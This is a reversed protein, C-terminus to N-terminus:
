VPAAGRYEPLLSAHINVAGFTPIDLAAQPLIRGYAIVVILDPHLSRITDLAEETKFTVPQLVPIQQELAYSKVPSFSIKGGRRNVRDPQTFVAAPRYGHSCLAKLPQLAFSPTGMFLIRLSNKNMM